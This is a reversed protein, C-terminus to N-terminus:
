RTRWSLRTARRAKPSRRYDVTDLYARALFLSPVM